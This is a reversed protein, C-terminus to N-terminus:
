LEYLETFKETLYDIYYQPNFDEGTAEKLIDRSKKTRGFRHVKERLWTRIPELDGARLAAEIDLEQAMAHYLQAAFASGLAYSPFYGISGQSWHIDQLVGEKDSEPKIGLYAEYKENWVRPLEEVTLDGDILEKEIEYRILVHLSYTLEDAETRILSPEAKNVMKMFDDLPVDKLQEPFAERLKPYVPEWFAKRRGLMNEMFRSQSEHMGMSVGGGAPTLTLEDAVDLEYLAHGTEHITSFLASEVADEYYHNTIRADHNHLNTTFPHESEAMVGRAFDLGVYEALWRNFCRQAEVDYRRHLPSKDIADNKATVKKLLPVIKEKLGAFFPDLVEMSFTEENQDLLADYLSQGEKRRYGAFKKTYRLIEKLVPAFSDFDNNQKARAWVTTARAQLEAFARYEEPPIKEMDELDKAMLRVVAAQNEDLDDAGKLEALLDKVEDNVLADFYQSSLNGVMRSTMELSEEPAMTEADWNFLTLATGLAEMKEIHKTLEQYKANM